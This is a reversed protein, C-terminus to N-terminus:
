NKFYKLFLAKVAKGLAESFLPPVANGVMRYQDTQSGLFEFSDKFSQLRAAERITISRAQKYDPHIHRLGDKHLHAVITTSPKDWKLVHYKHLSSTKGTKRTYLEKIANVNSYKSFNLNADKALEKFILIDRSNHFRPSHNPISSTYPSYPHKNKDSVKKSPFFKPLDSIALKVTQLKNTKFNPLINYYFDKIVEQTKEEFIDKRIGLLIVRKRIQPVGYESCDFVANSKIDSIIEYGSKKFSARIRETVLKGGPKASLMGPVNEFIFVKPKFYNVLKTYSEFLYNRYDEKMGNTDRIRGAVSYAQCPPGGIIVDINSVEQLIKSIGTKSYYHSGYGEKKSWGFLLKKVNQLDFWIVKKEADSIKNNKVLNYKLTECCKKDWDISAVFKFGPVKIFGESLGGCGAFLDICNFKM